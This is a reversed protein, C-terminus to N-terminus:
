AELQVVTLTVTITNSGAAARKNKVKAYITTGPTGDDNWGILGPTMIFTSAGATTTYVEALVGSGPTPDTGEARADDATRTTDNTYLVVWAPADIAVKLLAYSKFAGTINLDASADKAISGTTGSKTTRSGLSTGGGGGTGNAAATIRGQADVTIDANTYNGATVATDALNITGTGTITGGSLGTGSAISTVAPVPGNIWKTNTGDWKLVNDAVPTTIDVNTIDDLQSISNTGNIWKSTGADWQVTDGANPTGTIVVDTLDTLNGVSGTSNEWGSGTYKLFQGSGPSGTITVDSLSNLDTAGGSAQQSWQSGTYVEITNTSNNYIMAGGTVGTLADRETTDVSPPRMYRKDAESNANAFDVACSPSAVGAGIQGAYNVTFRQTTNSNISLPSAPDSTMGIGVTRTSHLDYFTSFGSTAVVNGFLKGTVNGNINGTFSGNTISFNNTVTLDNGVLLNNGATVNGTFTSVGSVHLKYSPDTIGIGLNGDASLSMLPTSPGNHWHFSGIGSNQNGADLYFNINGTDYNLLDVSKRTSYEFTGSENGYRLSGYKQSLEGTGYNISAVNLENYVSVGVGTAQLRKIASDYLGGVTTIGSSLQNAFITKASHIDGWANGGSQGLDVTNSQPVLNSAIRGTPYIKDAAANGLTVDGSFSVNGSATLTGDASVNKCNISNEFTTFGRLNSSGSVDLAKTFLTTGTVTTIGAFTSVGSVNLQDLETHGDVDLDGNADIAGTFTSAGSVNVGDLESHGNVDLGTLTGLSTINTQSATLVSGTVDGELPGKFTTATIVGVINAGGIIDLKCSPITSGIGVNIATHIGTSGSVWGDTAIAVIGTMGTADGVFKTATIVGSAADIKITGATIIGTVGVDTLSAIGTISANGRVDLKKKPISTGIGVLGNPNIIFNEDDVQVGNRFNFSKTYNAM